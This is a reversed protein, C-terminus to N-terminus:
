EKEASVSRNRSAIFYLPVGLAVIIFGPWTYAPKYILLLGCFALGM